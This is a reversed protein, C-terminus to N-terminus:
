KNEKKYFQNSKQKITKVKYASLVYNQFLRFLLSNIQNINFYKIELKIKRKLTIEFIM